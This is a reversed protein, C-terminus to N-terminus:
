WRRFHDIHHAMRPSALKPALDLGHEVEQDRVEGAPTPTAEGGTSNLDEVPVRGRAYPYRGLRALLEDDM